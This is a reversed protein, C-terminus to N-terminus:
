VVKKRNMYSKSGVSLGWYVFVSGLISAWFVTFWLNSSPPIHINLISLAIPAVLITILTHYISTSLKLPKPILIEQYQSYTGGIIFGSLYQLVFGFGSMKTNFVVEFIGLIMGGAFTCGIIMLALIYAKNWMSNVVKTCSIHNKTSNICHLCINLTGLLAESSVETEGICELDLTIIPYTSSRFGYDLQCVWIQRGEAIM